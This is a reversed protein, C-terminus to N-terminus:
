FFFAISLFAIWKIYWRLIWISFIKDGFDQWYIQSPTKSTILTLYITLSSPAGHECQHCLFLGLNGPKSQRAIHLGRRHRSTPSLGKPMSLHWHWARPSGLRWFLDSQSKISQLDGSRGYKTTAVSISEFNQPLPLILALLPTYHLSRWFSFDAESNMSISKSLVM